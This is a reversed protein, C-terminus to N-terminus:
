DEIVPNGVAISFTGSLDQGDAGFAFLAKDVADHFQEREADTVHGIV